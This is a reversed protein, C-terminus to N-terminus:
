VWPLPATYFNVQHEWAGHAPVSLVGPAKRLSAVPCQYFFDTMSKGGLAMVGSPNGTCQM